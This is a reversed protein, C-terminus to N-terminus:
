ASLARDLWLRLERPVDARAAIAAAFDKDGNISMIVRAFSAESLRAGPNDVISRWIAKGGRKVLVDTIATSLHPRRAIKMSLEADVGDRDAIAVLAADSLATIQELIPGCIAPDKHRALRCIAKVPANEIPALRHSMEALPARDTNEILRGFVEDFLAVQEGNYLPAASVFLDVIRRLVAGRWSPSTRPLAADLEALVAQCTLTM